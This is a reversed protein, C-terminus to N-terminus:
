CKENTGWGKSQLILFFSDEGARNKEYEHTIEEILSKKRPNQMLGLYDWIHNMFYDRIILARADNVSTSSRYRYFEFFELLLSDRPQLSVGKIGHSQHYSLDFLLRLLKKIPEEEIIFDEEYHLSSIFYLLSFLTPKSFRKHKAQYNSLSYDELAHKIGVSACRVSDVLSSPAGKEHRYRETIEKDTLKRGLNKKELLRNLFKSAVIIDL